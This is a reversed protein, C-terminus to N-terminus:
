ADEFRELRRQAALSEPLDARRVAAALRAEFAQPDAIGDYVEMLTVVGGSEDARRMLRAQVEGAAADCQMQRLRPALERAAQPELKYYIFWHQM